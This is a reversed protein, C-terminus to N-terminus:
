SEHSESLTYDTIRVTYSTIGGKLSAVDIYEGILPNRSAKVIINHFNKDLESFAKWEDSNFEIRIYKNNWLEEM